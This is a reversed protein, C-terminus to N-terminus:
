IIGVVLEVTAALLLIHLITDNFHFFLLQFFSRIGPKKFVNVGFKTKRDNVDQDDGIIGREPDSKLKNVLGNPSDYLSYLKEISKSYIQNEALQKINDPHFLDRITLSSPNCLLKERLKSTTEYQPQVM